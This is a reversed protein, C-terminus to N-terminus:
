CTSLFICFVNAGIIIFWIVLIKTFTALCFERKCSNTFWVFSIISVAFVGAEIFWALINLFLARVIIPLWSFFNSDICLIIFVNFIIIVTTVNTIAKIM